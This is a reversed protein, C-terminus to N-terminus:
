GVVKKTKKPAAKKVTKATGAAKPAKAVKPAAKVETKLAATLATNLRALDKRMFRIEIPNGLQGLSNKMKAVFYDNTLSAKKKLLEAASHDKVDTYKM